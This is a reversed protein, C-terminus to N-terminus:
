AKDLSDYEVGMQRLQKALADREARLATMSYLRRAAELMIAQRCLRMPWQKIPCILCDVEPHVSSCVKLAECLEEYSLKEVDLSNM